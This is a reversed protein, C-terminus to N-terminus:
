LRRSPEKIKAVGPMSKHLAKAANNALEPRLDDQLWDSLTELQLTGDLNTGSVISVDMLVGEEELIKFVEQKRHRPATSTLCSKLPNNPLLTASIVKGPAIELLPPDVKAGGAVLDSVLTPTASQCAMTLPTEALANLCNFNFGVKALARIKLVDIETPFGNAGLICLHAVSYDAVWRDETRAGHDILMQFVRVSDLNDNDHAFYAALMLPPMANKQALDDLVWRAPMEHKNRFASSSLLTNLSKPGCPANVDAGAMIANEVTGVDSQRIAKFLKSQVKLWAADVTEDKQKMVRQHYDFNESSIPECTEQTDSIRVVWNEHDLRYASKLPNHATM